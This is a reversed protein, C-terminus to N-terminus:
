HQSTYEKPGIFDSIAGGSPNDKGRCCSHSVNTTVCIELIMVILQHNNELILSSYLTDLPKYLIVWNLACVM